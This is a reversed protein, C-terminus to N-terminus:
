PQHTTGIELLQDTFTETEEELVVRVALDTLTPTQELLVM